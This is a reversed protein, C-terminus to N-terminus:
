GQWALHVMKFVQGLTLTLTRPLTLTVANM